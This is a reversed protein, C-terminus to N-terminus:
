CQTEFEGRTVAATQDFTEKFAQQWWSNRIIDLKMTLVKRASHRGVSKIGLPTENKAM